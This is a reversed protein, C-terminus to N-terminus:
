RRNRRGTSLGPWPGIGLFRMAATPGVASDPWREILHPYIVSGDLTELVPLAQRVLPPLACWGPTGSWGRGAGSGAEGLLRVTAAVPSDIEWVRNFVVRTGAAVRLRSPRRGAEAVALWCGEHRGFRVGGVTASRGAALRAALRTLARTTPPHDPAGVLGIVHALARNRVVEPLDLMRDSVPMHGSVQPAALLGDRALATLLSDDIAAAAAALRGLPPTTRGRAMAALTARTRVREFRRDANSPDQETVLGQARCHAVLRSRAIGLLPRLLDVGSRTVAPRMGALGALGSGHQLRMMVTEAQDDAHHGFLLCGGDQRARALLLAYRAARAWAQLGTAPADADVTLIEAEIGRDQMRRCVRRAEAASDQRIGHDIILATHRHGHRAAFDAALLALAGSDPGGSLATFLPQGCTVRGLLCHALAAAPAGSPSGAASGDAM